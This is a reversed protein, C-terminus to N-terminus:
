PKRGLLDMAQEAIRVAASPNYSDDGKSQAEPQAFWREILAKKVANRETDEFLALYPDISALEIALRRNRWQVRRHKGSEKLAYTGLGVLPLVIVAKAGIQALETAEHLPGFLLGAAAIAAGFIIVGIWRWADAASKEAVATKNFGGSLADAGIAGVVEQVEKRRVEFEELYENTKATLADLQEELSGRSENVLEQFQKTRDSVAENFEKSRRDQAESFQSQLQTRLTEVAKKEAEVETLKSEIQATTQQINKQAEGVKQDVATKAAAVDKELNGLHQGASRRFKVIDDRLGEVDAPVLPVNMGAVQQLAADAHNNASVLHPLQPNGMFAQVENAAAQISKNLADLLTEPTLSPDASGLVREVYDAVQDLRAHQERIDTSSSPLHEVSDDLQTCLEELTTFVVHGTFRDDFATM